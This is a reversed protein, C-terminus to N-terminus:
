NKSTGLAIRITGEVKAELRGIGCSDIKMAQGWIFLTCGLPHVREDRGFM